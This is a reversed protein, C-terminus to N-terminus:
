VHSPPLANDEDKERDNGHLRSDFDKGKHGLIEVKAPIVFVLL